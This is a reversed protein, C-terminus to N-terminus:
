TRPHGLTVVYLPKDGEPSGIFAHLEADRFAGVVAAGLGLSVAQLEVNQAVHGAEILVYRSARDRYKAATRAEVGSIVLVAPATAIWDQHLCIAALDARRDGGSIKRLAHPKAAYHHIGATLGEVAGTLLYLEMPFLAGASPVTRYDRGHTIGQGAWLLQSVQTLTLATGSYERASRRRAIADNLAMGGAMDPAPLVIGGKMKPGPGIVLTM